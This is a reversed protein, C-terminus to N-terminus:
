KHIKKGIGFKGALGQCLTQTAWSHLTHRVRSCLSGQFALLECWCRWAPNWDWIDQSQSLPELRSLCLPVLSQFWLWSLVLNCLIWKTSFIWAQLCKTFFIQAPLWIIFLRQTLLWRPFLSQLPLYQLLATNCVPLTLWWCFCCHLCRLAYDILLYLTMAPLLSWCDTWALFHNM